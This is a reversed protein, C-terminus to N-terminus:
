VPPMRLPLTRDTVTAHLSTTEMGAEASSAQEMEELTQKIAKLKNKLPENKTHNAIATNIADAATANESLFWEEEGMCVRAVSASIGELESTGDLVQRFAGPVVHRTTASLLNRLADVQEVTPEDFDTDQPPLTKVEDGLRMLLSPVADVPWAEIIALANTFSHLKAPQKLSSISRFLSDISAVDARGAQIAALGDMFAQASDDNPPLASEIAADGPGQRGLEGQTQAPLFPPLHLAQRLQNASM